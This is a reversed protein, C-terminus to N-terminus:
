RVRAARSRIAASTRGAPEGEGTFLLYAPRDYHHRARDAQEADAQEGELTGRTGRCALTVAGVAIMLILDSLRLPVIIKM